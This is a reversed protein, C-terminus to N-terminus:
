SINPDELSFPRRNPPVGNWWYAIGFIAIIIIWDFAYSSIVALSSGKKSGGAPMRLNSLLPGRAMSSSTGLQQHPHSSGRYSTDFDDLGAHPNNSSSTSNNQHNYNFHDNDHYNYNDNDDSLRSYDRRRSLPILPVSGNNSHEENM